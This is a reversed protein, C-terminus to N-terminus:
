NSLRTIGKGLWDIFGKGLRGGLSLYLSPRGGLSTGAVAMKSSVNALMMESAESRSFGIFVTDSNM